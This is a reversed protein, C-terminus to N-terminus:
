TREILGNQELFEFLAADYEDPYIIRSQGHGAGSFVRQSANQTAALNRELIAKPAIVDRDGHLFLVPIKVSRLAAEVSVTRPDIGTIKWSVWWVPSLLWVFRKGFFTHWWGSSAEHLTAYASDLVLADAPMQEIQIALTSAAGGMSSGWVWVKAHPYRERVVEMAAVVDLREVFGISTRKGGSTGHARFDFCFCSIGAKHLQMALPIGEGRNMFYGHCLLAVSTPDPHDIWWGRLTIDDSSKFEVREQPLDVSRPSLYHPLRWPHLMFWSLGFLLVVYILVMLGFAVLFTVLFPSM